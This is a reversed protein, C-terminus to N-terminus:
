GALITPTPGISALASSGPKGAESLRNFFEINEAYFDVRASGTLAQTLAQFVAERTTSSLHNHKRHFTSGGAPTSGAVQQNRILREVLQALTARRWDKYCSRARRRATGRRIRSRRVRPPRGTGAGRAPAARGARGATSNRRGWGIYHLTRSVRSNAGTPELEM